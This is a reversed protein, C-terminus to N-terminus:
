KKEGTVKGNLKIFVLCKYGTKWMPQIYTVIRWVSLPSWKTNIDKAAADADQIWDLGEPSPTKRMVSPESNSIRDATAWFRSPAMKLNDSSRSLIEKAAWLAKAVLGLRNSHTPQSKGVTEGGELPRTIVATAPDAHQRTKALLVASARQKKQAATQLLTHLVSDWQKSQPTVEAAKYLTNDSIEFLFEINAKTVCLSTPCPVAVSCSM